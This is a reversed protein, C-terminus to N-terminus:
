HFPRKEAVVSENLKRYFLKWFAEFPMAKETEVFRVQLEELQSLIVAHVKLQAAHALRAFFSKMAYCAREPELKAPDYVVLIDLDCPDASDKASGFVWVQIGDPLNPTISPIAKKM